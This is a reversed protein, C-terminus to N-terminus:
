NWLQLLFLLMSLSLSLFLFCAIFLLFKIGLLNFSFVNILLLYLSIDAHCAAAAHSHAEVLAWIHAAHVRLLSAFFSQSLPCISLFLLALFVFEFQSVWNFQTSHANAQQLIRCVFLVACVCVIERKQEGVRRGKEGGREWVREVRITRLQNLLM